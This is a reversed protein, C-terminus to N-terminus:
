QSKCGAYSTIRTSLRGTDQQIEGGAIPRRLSLDALRRRLARRYEWRDGPFWWCHLDNYRFCARVWRRIRRSDSIRGVERRWVARMGVGGGLNARAALVRRSFYQSCARGQVLKATNGASLALGQLGAGMRRGYCGGHRHTNRVAACFVRGVGVTPRGRLDCCLSHGSAQHTGQDEFGLLPQVRLRQHTRNGDVGTAAAAVSCPSILLSLISLRFSLRASFALAAGLVREQPRRM